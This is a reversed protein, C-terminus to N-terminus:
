FSILQEDIRHRHKQVFPKIFDDEARWRAKAADQRHKYNGLYYHQGRFTLTAIWSDTKSYYSVGKIGSCNNKPLKTSTILELCTGDVMTRYELDHLCGCSQTHGNRLNSISVSSLKGCDCQCIWKQRDKQPINDPYLAVLKGFRQNTVDRKERLYCGCSKTFGRVLNRGSVLATAGCDCRCEWVINSDSRQETRTIAVLRGFRQLTLDRFKRRNQEELCGCSKTKGSIINGKYVTKRSGCDCTCDCLWYGKENKSENLITLLGFKQGIISKKKMAAKGAPYRVQGQQRGKKINKISYLSFM